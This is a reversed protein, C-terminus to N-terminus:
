FRVSLGLGFRGDRQPAFSVRLQDLPVEEWRETKNATGVLAGWVGGIFIGIVAGLAVREVGGLDVDGLDCFLGKCPPPPEYTLAGVFGGAVLGLVLGYVIGEDTHRKWGRSMELRTVSAVPIALQTGQEDVGLVLSDATATVLTARDKRCRTRTQGRRVSTSCEHTVQVRDGPKVPLRQQATVSIFPTVALVVVLLTINRM